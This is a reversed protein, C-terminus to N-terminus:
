AARPRAVGHGDRDGGSGRDRVRRRSRPAVIQVRREHAGPLADPVAGFDQYTADLFGLRPWTVTTDFGRAHGARFPGPMDPIWRLVRTWRREHMRCVYDMHRKSNGPRITPVNRATLHGDLERLVEDALKLSSEALREGFSDTDKVDELWLQMTGVILPFVPRGLAILKAKADLSDKGSEWDMMVTILQDIKRREAPSTAKLHKM